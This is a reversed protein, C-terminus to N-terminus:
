INGRRIESIVAPGWKNQMAGTVGATQITEKSRIIKLMRHIFM